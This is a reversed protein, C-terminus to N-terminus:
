SQNDEKEYGGAYCDAECSSVHSDEETKAMVQDVLQRLLKTANPQKRLFNAQIENIRFSFM